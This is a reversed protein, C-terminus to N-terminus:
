FEELFIIKQANSDNSQVTKNVGKPLELAHQFRATTGFWRPVKTTVYNDDQLETTGVGCFLCRAPAKRWKDGM